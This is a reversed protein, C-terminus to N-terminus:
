GMLKRVLGGMDSDLGNPGRLTKAKAALFRRESRQFLPTGAGRFNRLYEGYIFEYGPEAPDLEIAKDYALEAGYDGLRRMAEAATCVRRAEAKSDPGFDDSAFKRKFDEALRVREKAIDERVHPRSPDDGLPNRAM